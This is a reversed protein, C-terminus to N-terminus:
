DVLQSADDYDNELYRKSSVNASSRQTGGIEVTGM